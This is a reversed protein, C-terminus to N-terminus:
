CLDGDSIKQNFPYPRVFQTCSFPGVPQSQLKTLHILFISVKYLFEGMESIKSSGRKFCNLYDKTLVFYREKWRSFLKDRQTWLLGKRLTVSVKELSPEDNM